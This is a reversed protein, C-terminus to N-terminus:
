GGKRQMYKSWAEHQLIIRQEKANFVYEKKIDLSLHCEKFAEMEAKFKRIFSIFKAVEETPRILLEQIDEKSFVERALVEM